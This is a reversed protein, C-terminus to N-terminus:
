RRQPARLATRWFVFAAAIIYGLSLLIEFHHMIRYGKASFTRMAIHRQVRQDPNSCRAHWNHHDASVLNAHNHCVSRKPCPEPAFGARSQQLRAV